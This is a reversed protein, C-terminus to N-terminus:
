ANSLPITVATPLVTRWNREASGLGAPVVGLWVKLTGDEVTLDSEWRNTTAVSLVDVLEHVLHRTAALLSQTVTTGSPCGWREDLYASRTAGSSEHILITSGQAELRVQEPLHPGLAQVM